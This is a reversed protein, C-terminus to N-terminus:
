MQFFFVFFCPECRPVDASSNWDFAAPNLKKLKDCSVPRETRQPPSHKFIFTDTFVALQPSRSWHVLLPMQWAVDAMTDVEKWNRWRKIECKSSNWYSSLSSVFCFFILTLIFHYSNINARCNDKDKNQLKVIMSGNIHGNGATQFDVNNNWSCCWFRLLMKLLFFYGEWCNLTAEGDSIKLRKNGM